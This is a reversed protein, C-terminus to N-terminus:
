GCRMIVFDCGDAKMKAFNLYSYNNGSSTNVNWMSVDCGFAINKAQGSQGAGSIVTASVPIVAATLMLALACVIAGVQKIHKMFILRRM